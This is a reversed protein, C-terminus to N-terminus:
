IMELTADSNCTSVEKYSRGCPLCFRSRRAHLSPYPSVVIKHLIVDAIMKYISTFLNQVLHLTGGRKHKALRIFLIINCFINHKFQDTEKLPVFHKIIISNFDSKKAFLVLSVLDCNKLFDEQPILVQCHLLTLSLASEPIQHYTQSLIVKIM